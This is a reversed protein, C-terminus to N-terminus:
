NNMAEAPANGDDKKKKAQKKLAKKEKKTSKKEPQHHRLRDAFPDDQMAASHSQKEMQVELTDRIDSLLNLNDKLSAVSDIQRELTEIVRDHFTEERQERVLLNIAEKITDVRREEFYALLRNVERIFKKPIQANNEITRQKMTLENQYTEFDNELAKIDSKINKEYDAIIDKSKTFAEDFDAKNKKDYRNGKIRYQLRAIMAETKKFTFFLLLLLAIYSVVILLGYYMDEFLRDAPMIFLYDLTFVLAAPLFLLVAYILLVIFYRLLTGTFRRQAMFQRKEELMRGYPFHKHSPSLKIEKLKKIRQALEDVKDSLENSEEITQRLDTIAKYDKNEELM